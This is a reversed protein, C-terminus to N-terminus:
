SHLMSRQPFSVRMPSSAHFNPSSYRDGAQDPLLSPPVPVQYLALWDVGGVCLVLKWVRVNLRFYFLYPWGFVGHWAESCSSARDLIRICRIGVRGDHCMICSM